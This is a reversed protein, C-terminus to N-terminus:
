RAYFTTSLLLLEGRLADLGYALANQTEFGALVGIDTYTCSRWHLGRHTM